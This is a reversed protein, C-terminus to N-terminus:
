SSEEHDYRDLDAFTRRVGREHLSTLISSYAETFRRDDALDGFVARNDALFATPHRGQRRAQL